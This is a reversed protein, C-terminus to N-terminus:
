PTSSIGVSSAHYSTLHDYAANIRKLQEEAFKSGRRNGWADPHLSKALERRARAITDADAGVPLELLEFAAKCTPCPIGPQASAKVDSSENAPSVLYPALVIQYRNIVAKVAFSRKCCGSAASLLSQFAQAAQRAMKSGFLQDAFALFEVTSPLVVASREHHMVEDKLGNITSNQDGWTKALALYLLALSDTCKGNATTIASIAQLVDLHMVSGIDSLQEGRGHLAAATRVAQKWRKTCDQKLRRFQEVFAKHKRSASLSAARERRENRWKDVLDQSSFDHWESFSYPESELVAVCEPPPKKGNALANDFEFRAREFNRKKEELSSICEQEFKRDKIHTALGSWTALLVSGIVLLVIGTSTFGLISAWDM